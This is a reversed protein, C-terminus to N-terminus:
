SVTTRRCEKPAHDELYVVLYGKISDAFKPDLLKLENWGDKNLPHFFRGPSIKITREEAQGWDTGKQNTDCNVEVCKTLEYTVFLNVGSTKRKEKQAKQVFEKARAIAEKTGSGGATVAGLGKGPSFRLYGTLDLGDYISKEEEPTWGFTSTTVKQITLGCDGLRCNQPCPTPKKPKKSTLEWWLLALGAAVLAGGSLKEPSIDNGKTQASPTSIIKTENSIPKLVAPPTALQQTPVPVNQGFYALLKGGSNAWIEIPLNRSEESIKPGPLSCGDAGRCFQEPSAPITNTYQKTGVRVKIEIPLSKRVDQTQSAVILEYNVGFPPSKEIKNTSTNYFEFNFSAAHVLPSNLLPLILILLILYFKRTFM